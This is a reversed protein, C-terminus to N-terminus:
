KPNRMLFTRISRSASMTWSAARAVPPGLGGGITAQATLKAFKQWRDWGGHAAIPKELLDSMEDEDNLM